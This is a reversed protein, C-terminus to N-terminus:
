FFSQSQSTGHGRTFTATISYSEPKLTFTNHRHTYACTIPDMGEPHLHLKGPSRHYSGQYTQTDGSSMQAQAKFTGDRNFTVTVQSVILWIADGSLDRSTWTGPLPGTKAVLRGQNSKSAPSAHLGPSTLATTLSLALLPILIKM